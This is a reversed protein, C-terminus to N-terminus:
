QLLVPYRGTILSTSASPSTTCPPHSPLTLHLPLTLLKSSLCPSYYNDQALTTNGRLLFKSFHTQYQVPALKPLTESSAIELKMFITSM